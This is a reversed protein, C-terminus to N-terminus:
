SSYLYMKLCLSYLVIPLSCCLFCVFPFSCCLFCLTCHFPPCELQRLRCVLWIAWSTSLWHHRVAWWQPLFVNSWHCGQHLLHRSTSLQSQTLFLLGKWTLCRKWPHHMAQHTSCRDDHSRWQHLITQPRSHAVNATGMDHPGLPSQLIGSPSHWGTCLTCHSPALLELRWCPIYTGTNFHRSAPSHIFSTDAGNVQRNM